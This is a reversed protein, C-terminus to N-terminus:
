SVFNIGFRFHVWLEDSACDVLFVNGDNSRSRDDIFSFAGPM